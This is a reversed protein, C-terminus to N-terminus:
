VRASSSVRSAQDVGAGQQRKQIFRGGGATRQAVGQQVALVERGELDLGDFSPPELVQHEARYPDDFAQPQRRDLRDIPHKIRAVAVFRKQPVETRRHRRLPLGLEAVAEGPGASEIM